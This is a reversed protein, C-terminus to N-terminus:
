LDDLLWAHGPLLQCNGIRPEGIGQELFGRDAPVDKKLNLSPIGSCHAQTVLFAEEVEDEFDLPRRRANWQCENQNWVLELDLVVDPLLDDSSAILRQITITRLAQYDM